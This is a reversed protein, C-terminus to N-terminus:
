NTKYNVDKFREFIIGSLSPPFYILPFKFKTLLLKNEYSCIFDLRFSYLTTLYPVICTATRLDEHAPVFFVVSAACTLGFIFVTINNHQPQSHGVITYGQQLFIYSIGFFHKQIPQRNKSMSRGSELKM